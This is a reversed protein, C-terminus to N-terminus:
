SMGHDGLTKQAVRRELEEAVARPVCKMGVPNLYVRLSKAIVIAAPIGVITLVLGVVQIASGIFLLIGFPIYLVMMIVSWTKWAGSLATSKGVHETKGFEELLSGKVMSRGFPLLLFKGHEILGLGIPAAVVILVLLWGLIYSLIASIFGFFPFHWLVNGLARM